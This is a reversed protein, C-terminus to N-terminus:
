MVSIKLLYDQSQFDNKFTGTYLVDYVNESYNKVLLNKWYFLHLISIGYYSHPMVFRRFM